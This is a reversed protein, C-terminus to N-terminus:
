GTPRVRGEAQENRQDNANWEKATTALHERVKHVMHMAARDAREDGTPNRLPPEIAHCLHCLQTAPSGVLLYNHNDFIQNM